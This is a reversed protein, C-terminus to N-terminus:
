IPFKKVLDNIVHEMAAEASLAEARTCQKRLRLSRGPHIYNRFDKALECQDSTDESILDLERAVIIYDPLHWCDLAQRAVRPRKDAAVKKWDLASSEIAWLLLAEVVAGAIVVAAKWDGNRLSVSVSWIDQRLDARRKADTIFELGSITPPPPEDPCQQLAGLVLVIVNKKDFGSLPEVSYNMPANPQPMGHTAREIGVRMAAVAATYAKFSESPLTSLLHEPVRDILSLL